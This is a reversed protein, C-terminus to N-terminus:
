IGSPWLPTPRDRWWWYWTVSVIIGALSLMDAATCRGWLALGLSSVLITGATLGVLSSFLRMGLLATSIVALVGAIASPLRISWEDLTGHLKTAVVALWYPILPKSVHPQWGSTPHMFDGRVFMERVVEGVRGEPNWLHATGLHCFLIWSTALFLVSALSISIRDSIPIQETKISTM